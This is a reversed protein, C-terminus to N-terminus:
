WYGTSITTLYWWCILKVKVMTNKIVLFEIQNPINRLKAYVKLDMKVVLFRLFTVSFVVTWLTKIVNQGDVM